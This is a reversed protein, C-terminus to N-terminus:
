HSTTLWQVIPTVGDSGSMSILLLSQTPVDLPITGTVTKGKTVSAQNLLRQPFESWDTPDVGYINTDEPQYPASDQTYQDSFSEINFTFRAASEGVIKLHLIAYEGAIAQTGDPRTTTYTIKTLTVKAKARGEHALFPVGIKAADKPPPPSSATSSQPSSCAVALLGVAGAVLPAMVAMRMTKM